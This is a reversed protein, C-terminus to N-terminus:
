KKFLSELDLNSTNQITSNKNLKTEYKYGYTAVAIADAIDNDKVILNLNYTLNAWRISLHKPTIKGRIQKKKVLKNHASDDKTLRISLLTRWASTDVYRVKKDNNSRKLEDLIAYHIFELQKQTTRCRGKNTQEIYIYDSPYKNIITMLYNAMVKARVIFSFDEALVSKEVSAPSKFVGKDILVGNNLIAYGSSNSLDLGIVLM